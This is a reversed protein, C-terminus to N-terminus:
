QTYPALTYPPSKIVLDPKGFQKEFQWATPDPFEKPPLLNKPDGEPAGADVWRVITDIQADSLSRDNKFERIGITKNIHWPPMVRAQVRQKIRAAYKKADQYSLLSMPAISDPQHCVQCKEQLIPAIDKTFTVAAGAGNQPASIPKASVIALTVAAAAITAGISRSLHERVM